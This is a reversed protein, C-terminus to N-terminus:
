IKMKQILKIAVKEGIGPISCLTYIDKNKVAHILKDATLTSLIRIAVKSGIGTVKILKRFMTREQEDIFGYLVM